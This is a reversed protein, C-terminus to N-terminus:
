GVEVSCSSEAVCCSSEASLSGVVAAGRVIEGVLSISVQPRIVYALNVNVRQEVRTRVGLHQCLQQQPEPRGVMHVDSVVRVIRRLDLPLDFVHDAAPDIAHDDIPIPRVVVGHILGRLQHHVLRLLM